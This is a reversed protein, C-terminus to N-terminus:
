MMVRTFFVVVKKEECELVLLEPFYNCYIHLKIKRVFFRCKIFVIKLTWKAQRLHCQVHVTFPFFSSHEMQHNMESNM